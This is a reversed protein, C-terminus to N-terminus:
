AAVKGDPPPPPPENGGARPVSARSLKKRETLLKRCLANGERRKGAQIEPDENRDQGGQVGGM